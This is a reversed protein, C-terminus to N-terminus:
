RIERPRLRLDRSIAEITLMAVSPLFCLIDYEASPLVRGMVDESISGLLGPFMLGNQRGSRVPFASATALCLTTITLM